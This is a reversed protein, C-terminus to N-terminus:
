LVAQKNNAILLPQNSYALRYGKNIYGKIICERARKGDIGYEREAQSISYCTDIYEGNLSYIDISKYQDKKSRMRNDEISFRADACIRHYVTSHSLDLQECIERISYQQLFYLNEINQIQADTLSKGNGGPTLNYGNYYSDYFTIWNREAQHLEDNPINDQLLECKFHEVGLEYIAGDIASSNKGAYKKHESWRTMMTRTTLGIYVQNNIDNTIKYILGM